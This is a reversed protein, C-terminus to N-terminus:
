ILLTFNEADENPRFAAEHFTQKGSGSTLQM